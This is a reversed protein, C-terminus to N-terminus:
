AYIAEVVVTHLKTLILVVQFFYEEAVLSIYQKEIPQDMPKMDVMNEVTYFYLRKMKYHLTEKLTDVKVVLIHLIYNEVRRM